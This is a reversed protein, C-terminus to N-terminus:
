TYILICLDSHTFLSQEGKHYTKSMDYCINYSIIHVCRIDYSPYWSFAFTYVRTWAIKLKFTNACIRKWEFILAEWSNGCAPIEFVVAPLQIKLHKDMKDKSGSVAFLCQFLCQFLCMYRVCSNSLEHKKKEELKRRKQFAVLAPKKATGRSHPPTKINFCCAILSQIKLIREVEGQWQQLPGAHHTERKRCQYSLPALMGSPWSLAPYLSKM